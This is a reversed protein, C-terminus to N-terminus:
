FNSSTDLIYFSTYLPIFFYLYSSTDLLLFFHRYTPFIDLLLFFHRFTPLITDSPLFVPTKFYSFTDLLLFFNRFTPFLTQLNYSNHSLTSFFHRLTPLFWLHFTNRLIQSQTTSSTISSKNSREAKRARSRKKKV